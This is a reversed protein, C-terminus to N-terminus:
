LVADVFEVVFVLDVFYVVVVLLVEAEVEEDACHLVFYHVFEDLEEGAFVLVGYHVDVQFIVGDEEVVCDLVFYHVIEDLDVEVEEFVWDDFELEEGAFVLVDYHVDVQFAVGDKPHELEESQDVEKEVM